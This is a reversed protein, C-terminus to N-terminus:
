IRSRLGRRVQETVMGYVIHGALSRLHATVPARSPPGSLGIAPVSLEDAFLTQLAGFPLGAGIAAPRVYEVLMGYAGGLGAGFAYHFLHAAAPEHRRALKLRLVQEVITRAGRLTSPEAAASDGSVDHEAPKLPSGTARSLGAQFTAMALSGALGGLSGALFGRSLSPVTIGPFRSLNSTKM